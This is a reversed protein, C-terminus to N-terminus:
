HKITAYSVNDGYGDGDILDQRRGHHTHAITSYEIDTESHLFEENTYIAHSQEGLVHSSYLSRQSRPHVKPNVQINGYQHEQVLAEDQDRISPFHSPIEGRIPSLPATPKRKRRTYFFVIVVLFLLLIVGALVGLILLLNPSDENDGLNQNVTSDKLELEASTSSGATNHAICSYMGSKDENSDLVLIQETKNLLINGDKIWTYHTVSPNSSMFNCKLETAGERPPIVVVHVGTAAYQVPIEIPPSEERGLYNIAVCSYPETDKSINLVRFYQEESNLRIKSKGRYWEYRQPPPNSRSSCTLIVDSGELLEKNKSLSVTVDIPAYQVPILTPPSEGRGVDNIATCSFPETDKSINLVRLDKEESNLKIKSNGRYWEYRRPPPNSRSSCTLTVDSGELLINNTRLIVTVDKPAYRIRLLAANQSTRGNHYTATCQIETNDDEYSPIYTITLIERWKGGSLDVSQRETEGAKNLRLSPPSSGCTHVVSCSVIEPRGEVM